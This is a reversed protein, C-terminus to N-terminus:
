RRRAGMLVAGLFSVMGLVYGMYYTQVNMLRLGTDLGMLVAALVIGILIKWKSDMRDGGHIAMGAMAAFLSMVFAAVYVM